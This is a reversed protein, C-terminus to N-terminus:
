YKIIIFFCLSFIFQLPKFIFCFFFYKSKLNGENCDTNKKNKLQILLKKLESEDISNKKAMRKEVRFIRLITKATSYNINLSDAANKLPIEKL